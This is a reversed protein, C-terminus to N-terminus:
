RVVMYGNAWNASVNRSRVELWWFVMYGNARNASVKLPRAELEGGGDGVPGGGTRGTVLFAVPLAASYGPM